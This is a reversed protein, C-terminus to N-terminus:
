AADKPVTYCRPRSKDFKAGGRWHINKPRIGTKKAGESLPSDAFGVPPSFTRITDRGGDRGKAAGGGECLSAPANRAQPRPFRIGVGTVDTM